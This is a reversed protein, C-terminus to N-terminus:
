DQGQGIVLTRHGQGGIVCADEPGEREGDRARARAKWKGRQSESQELARKWGNYKTVRSHLSRQIIANCLFCAM